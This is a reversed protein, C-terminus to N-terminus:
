GAVAELVKDTPCSRQVMIVGVGNRPAVVLVEPQGLDVLVGQLRGLQLVKGTEAADAILPAWSPDQRVVWQGERGPIARQISRRLAEQLDEGADRGAAASRAEATPDAAAAPPPIDPEHEEDRLRLAELLLAQLGTTIRQEDCPCDNEIALSVEPWALIRLAAPEGRRHRLRADALEGALFYLVGTTGSARDTLRVTCTKQEMRVLQLFVGCSVGHLAGGESQRQLVTTVGQQLEAVSFPKELFRVCGGATALDRLEPTSYATMIMVPIDPYHERIHALLGLGDMRPMKLDTVVLAIDHEALLEVAAVGDVAIELPPMGNGTPFALRIAERLGPDDDVVLVRRNGNREPTGTM